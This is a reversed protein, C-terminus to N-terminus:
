RPGAGGPTGCVSGGDLPERSSLWPEFGFRASVTEARRDGAVIRSTVLVAPMVTGAIAVLTGVVSVAFLLACSAGALDWATRRWSVGRAAFGM